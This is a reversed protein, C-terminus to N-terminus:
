KQYDYCSLDPASLGEQWPELFILSHKYEVFRGLEDGLIVQMVNVLNFALLLWSLLFYCM